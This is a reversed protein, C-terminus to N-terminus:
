EDKTRYGIIVFILGVPILLFYGFCDGRQFAIDFIMLAILCLIITIGMLMRKISKM